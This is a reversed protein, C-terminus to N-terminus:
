VSWPEQLNVQKTERASKDCLKRGLDRRLIGENRRELGKFAQETLDLYELSINGFKDDFEGMARALSDHMVHQGNVQNILVKRSAVKNQM